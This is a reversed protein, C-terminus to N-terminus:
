FFTIGITGAGGSMGASGVAHIGWHQAIQTIGWGAFCCVGIVVLGTLLDGLIDKKSKEIAKATADIQRQLDSYREDLANLRETNQRLVERMEPLAAELAAIRENMDQVAQFMNETMEREQEDDDALEARIAAHAAADIAHYPALRDRIAAEVPVLADLVREQIIDERRRQRLLAEQDRIHTGILRNFLPSITRDAQARRTAFTADRLGLWRVFASAVQHPTTTFAKKNAPNLPARHRYRLPVGMIYRNIFERSYAIGDSGLLVNEDFPVQTIPDSLLQELLGRYAQFVRTTAGEEHMDLATQYANTFDRYWGRLQETLNDTFREDNLLDILERSLIRQMANARLELHTTQTNQVITPTVM